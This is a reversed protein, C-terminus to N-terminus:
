AYRAEHRAIQGQLNAIRELLVDETTHVIQLGPREEVFSFDVGARLLELQRQALNLHAVLIEKVRDAM